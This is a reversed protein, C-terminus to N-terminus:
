QNTVKNFCESGVSTWRGSTVARGLRWRHSQPRRHLGVIPQPTYTSAERSLMRNKIMHSITFTSRFFKIVQKMTSVTKKTFMRRLWYPRQNWYYFVRIIYHLIYHLPYKRLSLTGWPLIYTCQIFKNNLSPINVLSQLSDGYETLAWGQVQLLYNDVSFQLCM